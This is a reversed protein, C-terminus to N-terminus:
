LYANPSGTPFSIGQGYLTASTTPGHLVDTFSARSIVLRWVIGGKMLAARRVRPIRLLATREELYAVYDNKTFQYGPSRVPLTLHPLISPSTTCPLLTHFEIGRQILIRCLEYDTLTSDLRCLFLADIALVKSHGAPVSRFRNTGLPESRFWNSESWFRKSNTPIQDSGTPVM